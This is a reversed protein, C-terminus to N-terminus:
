AIEWDRALCSFEGDKSRIIFHNVKKWYGEDYCDHISNQKQLRNKWSSNNIIFSGCLDIGKGIFEHSEFVEDNIGGFKLEETGSFKIKLNDIEVFTYNFDTKLKIETFFKIGFDYPEAYEYEKEKCIMRETTIIENWLKLREEFNLASKEEDLKRKSEILQNLELKNM